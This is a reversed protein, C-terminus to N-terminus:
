QEPMKIGCIPEGKDNVYGYEMSGQANIIGVRAIWQEGTFFFEFGTDWIPEQIFVGDENIIGVKGSEHISYEGDTPSYGSIWEGPDSVFAYGHSYAGLVSWESFTFMRGYVDM